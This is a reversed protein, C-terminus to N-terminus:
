INIFDTLQANKRKFHKLKTMNVNKEYSVPKVPKVLKKRDEQTTFNSVDVNKNTTEFFHNNFDTM